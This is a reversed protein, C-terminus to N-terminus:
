LLRSTDELIATQGGNSMQAIRDLFQASTEDATRSVERNGVHARYVDPTDTNATDDTCFAVVFVPGGAKRQEVKELRNKITM